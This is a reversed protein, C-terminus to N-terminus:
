LDTFKMELFDLPTQYDSNSGDLFSSKFYASNFLPSHSLRLRYFSVLFPPGLPNLNYTLILNPPFKITTDSITSYLKEGNLFV